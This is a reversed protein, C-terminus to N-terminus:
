LCMSHFKLVPASLLFLSFNRGQPLPWYRIYQSQLIWSWFSVCVLSSFHYCPASEPHRAPDWAKSWARLNYRCFVLIFARHPLSKTGSTRWETRLGLFQVQRSISFLYIIFSAAARHTPVKLGMKCILTCMWPQSLKGLTAHSSCALDPNLSWCHTGLWQASMSDTYMGLSHLIPRAGRWNPFSLELWYIVLNRREPM